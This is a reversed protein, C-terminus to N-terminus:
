SGRRVTQKRPPGGKPDPVLVVVVCQGGQESVDLVQAGGKEASVQAAIQACDAAIASGTPM